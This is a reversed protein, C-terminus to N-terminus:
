AASPGLRTENGAEQFFKLEERLNASLVWHGANIRIGAILDPQEVFECAVGAGAIRGLAAAVAKRQGPELPFATAVQVTGQQDRIARAIFQQREAILAALDEMGITVLRAEMEPGALRASLRTVFTLSLELAEKNAQEARKQDRQRDLARNRERERELEDRVKALQQEREKQIEANLRARAEEREREWGALRERYRQELAAAEERLTHADTLQREIGAKRRDLIALVPRYLFRHLLWVLVLFNVIELVFTTGNFTM